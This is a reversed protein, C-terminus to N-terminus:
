DGNFLKGCYASYNQYFEDVSKPILAEHKTNNM